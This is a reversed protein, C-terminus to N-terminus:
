KKCKCRKVKSKKSKKTRLYQSFKYPYKEFNIIGEETRVLDTDTIKPYDPYIDDENIHKDFDIFVGSLQKRQKDTLHKM